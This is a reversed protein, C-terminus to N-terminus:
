RTFASFPVPRADQGLAVFEGPPRFEDADHYEAGYNKSLWRICAHTHENVIRYQISLNFCERYAHKAQEKLEYYPPDSITHRYEGRLEEYSLNTRIMGNTRWEKPVPMRSYEVGYSSWLHGVREAAAIAWKPSPLPELPDRGLSDDHEYAIPANPDGGTNLLGIMGSERPPPPPKPPIPKPLEVGIIFHYLRVTEEVLYRRNEIWRTGPGNVFHMVSDRDGKGLYAPLHLREAEFRKAEATHFLSEAIFDMTETFKAKARPPTKGPWVGLERSTKEIRAFEENAGHHDSKAAYMHALRIRLHIEIERLLQLDDTKKKQATKTWEGVATVARHLLVLASHSDDRDDFGDIMALAMESWLEYNVPVFTYEFTQLNSEASALDLYGLGMNMKAADVFARPARPDRPANMAFAGHALAAEELLGRALLGEAEEFTAPPKKGDAVSASAITLSSCCIAFGVLISRM